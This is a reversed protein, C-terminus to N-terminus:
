LSSGSFSATNVLGVRGGRSRPITPSDRLLLRSESGPYPSCEPGPETEFTSMSRLLQLAKQITCIMDSEMSCAVLVPKSLGSIHYQVAWSTAAFNSFNRACIFIIACCRNLGSKSMHPESHNTPAKKKKRCGHFAQLGLIKERGGNGVVM